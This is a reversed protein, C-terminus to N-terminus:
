QKRSRTTEGTLRHRPLGQMRHAESVGVSAVEITQGPGPTM